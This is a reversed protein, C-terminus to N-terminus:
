ITLSPKAMAPFPSPLFLARTPLTRAEPHISQNPLATTMSLATVPPRGNCRSTISLMASSKPRTAPVSILTGVQQERWSAHRLCHFTISGHVTPVAQFRCTKKTNGNTPIHAKPLRTHLKLGISTARGNAKKCMTSTSCCSTMTTKQRSKTIFLSKMKRVPM